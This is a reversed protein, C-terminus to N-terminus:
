NKNPIYTLFVCGNQFVRSKVLKLGVRRQVGEFLTRGRGIVIPAVVIQYEDILGEQTLQAVIQGSGLIVMGNGPQQKLKRVEDALNGKLLTTNNWDAKPLTKSFVIKESRNMGKAVVPMMQAAEPSPWFSAMMEYTVRGFLLVGNGSANGGVFENWEADNRDRRAWSMDNNPGTFYGDLSISNFVSLKRV